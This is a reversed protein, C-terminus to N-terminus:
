GDGDAKDAAGDAFFAQAMEIAEDIRDPDMNKAKISMTRGDPREFALELSRDREFYAKIIQFLAVAAGSSIFSLAIMGLTVPDGREGAQAEGEPIEARAVTHHNISSVLDRTLAQVEAPGMGGSTVTLTQSMAPVTDHSNYRREAM